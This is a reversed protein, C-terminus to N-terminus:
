FIRCCKKERKKIQKLNNNHYSIELEKKSEDLKDETFTDASTFKNSFTRRQDDNYRTNHITKNNNNARNKNLNNVKNDNESIEETETKEKDDFSFEKKEKIDDIIHFFLEDLNYNLRASVKIFKLQYKNIKDYIKEDNDLTDNLDYKNGVLYVIKDIEKENNYNIKDLFYELKDLTEIRSLDFLIIFADTRKKFKKSFDISFDENGATDILQLEINNFGYKFIKVKFDVGFTPLHNIEFQYGNFVNILQTKGVQEDGYVIVKYFFNNEDKEM